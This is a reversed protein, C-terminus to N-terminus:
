LLAGGPGRPRLAVITAPTSIAPPMTQLPITLRSRGSPLRRRAGANRRRGAPSTIAALAILASPNRSKVKATTWRWRAVFARLGSSGDTGSTIPSNPTTAIAKPLTPRAKRQPVFRRVEDHLLERRRGGLLRRPSGGTPRGSTVLTRAKAPRNREREPEDDGREVRHPDAEEGTEHPHEPDDDAGPEDEAERRGYHDEPQDRDADHEKAEPGTSQRGGPLHAFGDRAAECPCRIGNGLCELLDRTRLVSLHLRDARFARAPRPARAPPPAVRACACVCAISRGGGDPLQPVISILGRSDIETRMATVPIALSKPVTM